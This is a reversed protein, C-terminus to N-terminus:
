AGTNLRVLAAANWVTGRSRMNGFYYVAGPLTDEHRSISMEKRSVIVTGAEFDGFYVSKEGDTSGAALYDNVLIEYGWFSFNGNSPDIVLDSGTGAQSLGRLHALAARSMIFKARPKYASSLAAIMDAYADVTTPLADASGSDVETITAADLEAVMDTAEAVGIQQAQFKAVMQDLAPLDAVSQNSFVTRSTWNQPIVQASAIAGGHGSAADVASLINAEHAATIGSVTPLNVATASTPMVTSVARFLNQQALAFYIGESATAAGTTNTTGTVAKTFDVSGASKFEEHSLGFNEMQKEGKILAPAAKMAVEMEERASKEAAIEEKLAVLEEEKVFGEVSPIESKLAVLELDAKDAKAEVVSNVAEKVVAVIDENKIEESM